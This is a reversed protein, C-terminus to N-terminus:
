SILTNLDKFPIVVDDSAKMAHVHVVDESLSHAHIPTCRALDNIQDYSQQWGDTLAPAKRRQRRATRRTM